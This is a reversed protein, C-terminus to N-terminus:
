ADIGGLTARSPLRPNFNTSTGREAFGRSGGNALHIIDRARIAPHPLIPIEGLGDYDRYSSSRAADQFKGEKGDTMGVSTEFVEDRQQALCLDFANHINSVKRPRPGIRLEVDVRKGSPQRGVGNIVLVQRGEATAASSVQGHWSLDIRKPLVCAKM